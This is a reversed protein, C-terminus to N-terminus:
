EVKPSMRAWDILLCNLEPCPTLWVVIRLLTVFWADSIFFRKYFDREFSRGGILSFVYNRLTKQRNRQELENIKEKELDAIYWKSPTSDSTIPIHLASLQSSLGLQNALANAQYSYVPRKLIKKYSDNGSPSPLYDINDQSTILEYLVFDYQRLRDQLQRYYIDEGIHVISYLDVITKPPSDRMSVIDKSSSLIETYFRQVSTVLSITMKRPIIGVPQILIDVPRVVAHVISAAYLLFVATSGGVAVSVALRM